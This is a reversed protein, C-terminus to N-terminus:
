GTQVLHEDKKDNQRDGQRGHVLRGEARQQQDGGGLQVGQPVGAKQRQEEEDVADKDAIGDGNKFRDDGTVGELAGELHVFEGTQGAKNGPDRDDPQRDHYPVQDIAPLDPCGHFQIEVGEKEQQFEQQHPDTGGDEKGPLIATRGAPEEDTGCHDDEAAREVAEIDVQDAEIGALPP